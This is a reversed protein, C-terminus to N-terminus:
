RPQFQQARLSELEARCAESIQRTIDMREDQFLSAIGERSLTVNPRFYTETIERMVHDAAAVVEPSSIVRMRGLIGYLVALSSLDPKEHQLADVYCKSAAEMFDKYIEQRRLLVRVLWEARVQRVNVLWSGLISMAGGIAAGALGSAASVLSPDM